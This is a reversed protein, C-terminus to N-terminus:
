ALWRGSPRIVLTTGSEYRELGIIMAALRRQVTATLVYSPRNRLALMNQCSHEFSPCAGANTDHGYPM